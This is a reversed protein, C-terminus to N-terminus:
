QRRNGPIRTQTSSGLGSAAFDARAYGAATKAIGPSAGASVLASEGIALEQGLTGGGKCQRQAATAREHPTGATYSPGPLGICPAGKSTYGPLDRVAADQIIHHGDKVGMNELERKTGLVACQGSPDVIFLALGLPDIWRTPNIGYGFPRLGGALGIPDPSLYLGAEADYYRFRNYFLGTESDDEQGQFRLPTSARAGDATGTRGWVERDLQALVGGAGDVLEEPTGIPDNVYFTWASARGGYGDPGTERHAWPVFGGDEFCYTREEVVPDGSVAARTRIAHTLTDGDWVFRTREETKPQAGPKSVAVLRAELRRGLPDYAYAARRGDPLEVGALRGAADWAYRWARGGERRERLRGAEDWTYSAGGRQLLRGGPGYIRPEGEREHNGAADYRFREDRGTAEHLASLLRGAPDYAYQIWGRRKDLVDSLETEVDYRYEKEVTIRDPQAPAAPGAWSPETFRVPRLSGAATVSRRVVRGLADHEQYIRGGRPLARLSERGLTDRAHGVDHLEDLITRTRAGGADRDIQEVHGLSTTRRVRDGRADHLSEIAHEEGDLRQVERTIRGAADREFRVEGGPWAVRTVEGRLDYSFTETTEDTLTRAIRQGAADYAYVTIEGAVESRVIRGTKDYKHNLRRGDFTEERVVRGAGNRTLKHIEGLENVVEVLEGERDYRLHLTQGAANTKAALKNHGGWTLGLTRGGPGQVECLRRGADYGYRTFRGGASFVAALDGRDTWAFRTENGLPDIELVRRGLADYAWRWRAGNPDTQDVLNGEADYALQTVGGTASTIATVLGRADYAYSTTAGTPDAEHLVNGRDDRHLAYVGGAPDIIRVVDRHVDREYTHARGLPDIVRVERGRADREYRSVAEVADMRAVVRGHVDYATTVVGGGEVAKEVLGHRNGFYRRVERSDAVETYRGAGYDLRVHHVGRARTHGDALKAPLGEALSPDRMGSYDGWTEVCRGARDYVFRFALGSRDTECVLRHQDDYAYRAVHGEADFAAALNGADDYAYRAVAMWRGQARANHVHVSAIRGARTNEIAVVRGASDVIEALRGEADYTLEIKNANRDRLEILKWRAGADDVAALVRLIGDGKDLVFRERERRLLWGWPGIVEAGIEVRAFDVAIGEDSWVVLGRRKVEIEWNWTHAWGFGLGVDRQAATTSYVRAFVLPLPGPLELEVAPLTYARGTIVDVPHGDACQGDEGAPASRGDGEASEGGNEGGANEDGDGDGAADGDAGGAGVGRGCVATGVGMGPTPTMMPAPACRMTGGPGKNALVPSGTIGMMGLECIVNPAGVVITVAGGTNHSVVEKLAGPENGHCAEFAGGVTGIPAGNVKTRSPAGVIGERSTGSAPYPVPLPSPAAPTLCVSPAIPAVVHGSKETIVDMGLATVKGGM